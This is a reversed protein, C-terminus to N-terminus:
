RLAGRVVRLCEAYTSLLWEKDATAPTGPVGRLSKKENSAITELLKYAIQEPSNEAIRIIQQEAM